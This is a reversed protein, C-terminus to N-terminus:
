PNFLRILILTIDDNGKADMTKRILHDCKKEINGDGNLISQIASAGLPKHLGDSSMLILDNQELPIVDTEPNIEGHGMCQELIHQSYHTKAQEPTIEGEDLLFKAFTHDSTVQILKNHRFLYIRTDEVHAWHVSRGSIYLATLTTGMNEADPDTKSADMIQQDIEHFIKVMSDIERSEPISKVAKIGSVALASAKEGGPEGGMGDALAAVIGDKLQKITFRDQNMQRKMGKQSLCAVEIRFTKSSYTKYFRNAPNTQSM